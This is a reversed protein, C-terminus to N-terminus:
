HPMNFVYQTFNVIKNLMQNLSGVMINVRWEWVLVYTDDPWEHWSRKEEDCEMDHCPLEEEEDFYREEEDRAQIDLLDFADNNDVERLFFPSRVHTSLIMCCM